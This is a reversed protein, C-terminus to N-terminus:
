YDFQFNNLDYQPPLKNELISIQRAQNSNSARQIIYKSNNFNAAYFHCLQSPM